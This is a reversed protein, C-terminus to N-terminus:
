VTWKFILCHWDCTRKAPSTDTVSHFVGSSGSPSLHCLQSQPGPLKCCSRHAAATCGLLYVNLIVLPAPSLWSMNETGSLMRLGKRASAIGGADLVSSESSPAGWHYQRSHCM